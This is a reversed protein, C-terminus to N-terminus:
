QPENRLPHCRPCRTVTGDVEIHRTKPDCEGCPPPAPANARTGATLPKGVGVGVPHYPYPPPTVSANRAANGHRDRFRKQRDRNAEKQAKVQYSSPQYDLYDHINWGTSNVIWLGRNVLDILSRRLISGKIPPAIEVLKDVPVYGDTLNEACWIIAQTHLRFAADSLPRIKHHRYYRDDFRAWTVSVVCGDDAM